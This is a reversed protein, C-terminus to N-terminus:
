GKKKIFNAQEVNKTITVFFPSPGKFESFIVYGMQLPKTSIM